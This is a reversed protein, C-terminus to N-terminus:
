AGVVMRDAGLPEDEIGVIVLGVIAVVDGQHIDSALWDLFDRRGPQASGIGLILEVRDDKRGTKVRHGSRHLFDVDVGICPQRYLRLPFVAWAGVEPDHNGAEGVQEHDGTRLARADFALHDQRALLM